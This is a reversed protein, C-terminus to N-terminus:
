ASSKGTKLKNRALKEKHNEIMLKETYKKLEAYKVQDVPENSSVSASSIDGEFPLVNKTDIGAKM